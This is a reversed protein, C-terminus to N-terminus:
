NKHLNKLYHESVFEYAKKIGKDKKDKFEISGEFVVGDLNEEKIMKLMKSLTDDGIIDDSDLCFIYESSTKSVAANRTAGGGRNESHQYTKINSHEKTLEQMLNWTNDTSCDDVMVIEFNDLGQKYCSEVAERLTEECNYCPIIISLDTKIM